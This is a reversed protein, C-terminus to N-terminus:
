MAGCGCAELGSFFHGGDLDEHGVRSAAMAGGGVGEAVGEVDQVLRFRGTEGELDFAVDHVDVGVVAGEPGDVGVDRQVLEHRFVAKQPFPKVFESRRRQTKPHVVEQQLRKAELGKLSTHPTIRQIRLPVIFPCIHHNTNM